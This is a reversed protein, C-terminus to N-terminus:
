ILAHQGGSLEPTVHRPLTFCVTTGVGEMSEIWLRGGHSEVIRAVIALGVGSGTPNLAKGTPLRQFIDFVKLQFARPIGVGNDQVRMEWGDPRMTAGVVILPTRAPPTYAV